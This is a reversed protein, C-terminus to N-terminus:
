FCTIVLADDCVVIKGRLKELRQIERRLRSIACHVDQRRLEIRDDTIPTGYEIVLEVDKKRLGRQNMRVDAHRTYTLDKMENEQQTEVSKM